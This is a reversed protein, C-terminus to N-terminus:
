RPVLWARPDVPDKGARLEFYVGTRNHGGTDGATSIADGASVSDGVQREVSQNHGYLSFFGGDHEVIIILGFRQLWGVYAVRGSAVARVPTGRDAGIWLGNWKLRGDAKAQGYTALLPGRIPWPLKGKNSKFPGSLAPSVPTRAKELAKRLSDVLQTLQRAEAELESKKDASARLEADLSDIARSRATRDRQLRLLAEQQKERLSELSAQAEHLQQGLTVLAQLQVQLANFRERQARGFYDFYVMLRGLGTLDDQALLVRTEPSRGLIYAARLQRALAERQGALERQAEAQRREADAVRANQEDIRKDLSAIESQISAVDRELRSAQRSLEAREGRGKEIDASLAKLRERTEALESESSKIKQQQDARVGTTALCLGAMAAATFAARLCQPLTLSRILVSNRLGPRPHL